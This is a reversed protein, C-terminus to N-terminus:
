KLYEFVDGHAQRCMELRNVFGDIAGNIEVQTMSEVQFLIAREMQAVSKPWGAESKMMGNKIRSWCWYDLPSIDPSRSPWDPLVTDFLNRGRRSCLRGRTKLNLYNLITDSTHPAAGDQQFYDERLFHNAAISFSNCTFIKSFNYM